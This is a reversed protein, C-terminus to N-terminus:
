NSFHLWRWLSSQSLSNNSEAVARGSSWDTGSSFWRWLSVNVRQCRTAWSSSSAHGCCNRARAWFFQLNSNSFTLNVLLQNGSKCKLSSWFSSLYLPLLQQRRIRLSVCFCSYPFCVRELWALAFWKAEGRGGNRLYLCHINLGSSTLAPKSLLLDPPARFPCPSPRVITCLFRSLTVSTHRRGGGVWRNGTTSSSSSATRTTSRWMASTARVQLCSATDRVDALVSVPM